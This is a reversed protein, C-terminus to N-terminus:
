FLARYGKLQYENNNVTLRTAKEKLSAERQLRAHAGGRGAAAELIEAQKLQAAHAEAYRNSYLSLMPRVLTERECKGGGPHGRACCSSDGEFPFLAEQLWAQEVKIPPASFSAALWAGKSKKQVLFCLQEFRAQVDSRYSQVDAEMNKLTSSFSRAWEPRAVLPPPAVILLADALNAYLPLSRQALERNKPEDQPVCVYDIFVHLNKLPWKNVSAIHKLANLLVPLREGTSDPHAQSLWEHSVFVLRNPGAADFFFRAVDVSDLELHGPRGKLQAFPLLRNVADPESTTVKADVSLESINLVYLPFAFTEKSAAAIEEVLVKSPERALIEAKAWLVARVSTRACYVLAGLLLLASMGKLAQVYWPLPPPPPPPPPPSQYGLALLDSPGRVEFSHNCDAHYANVQTAQMANDVMVHVRSARGAPCGPSQLGSELYDEELVAGYEKAPITQVWTGLHEAASYGDPSCVQWRWDVEVEGGLEFRLCGAYSLADADARYWVSGKIDAASVTGDLSPLDRVHPPPLHETGGRKIDILWGRLRLAFTCGDAAAFANLELPRGAEVKSILGAYTRDADVQVNWHDYLTLSVVAEAIGGPCAPDARAFRQTGGLPSLESGILQGVLEGGVAEAPNLALRECKMWDTNPFREVRDGISVMYCDAGYTRFLVTRLDFLWREPDFSHVDTQSGTGGRKRGAAEVGALAALAALASYRGM